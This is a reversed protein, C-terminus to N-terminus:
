RKVAVAIMLSSRAADPILPYPLRHGSYMSDVLCLGYEGLAASLSEQTFEHRSLALYPPWPSLKLGRTLSFSLRQLRRLLSAKNPVSIVLIGNPKLIRAFEEIAKATDDLYELVSSCVIGDISVSDLDLVEITKVVGISLRQAQDQPLRAKGRRASSVMRDSADVALVTCGRAVLERSLTGAGCGADLWRGGPPAHADVMAMFDLLRQQFTARRYKAEWEDALADHFRVAESKVCEEDIQYLQARVRHPDATSPISIAAHEHRQGPM